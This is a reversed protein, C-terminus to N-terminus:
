KKVEGSGRSRPPSGHGPGAFLRITLHARECIDNEDEREKKREQEWWDMGM